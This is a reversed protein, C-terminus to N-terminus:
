FTNRKNVIVTSIINAIILTIITVVYMPLNDGTKVNNNTYGSGSGVYSSSGVNSTKQWQAELYLDSDIETDFDFKEGDLYWGIFKYGERTPQPISNITDEYKVAKSSVISGGNSDFTITYEKRNYIVEYVTSGDSKIIENLKSRAEDFEFGEYEEVELIAIDGVYGTYVDKFVEDEDLGEFITLVTYEAEQPMEWKAVLTIDEEVPTDFDYEDGDLLWGVLVYGDEGELLPFERVYDQYKVKAKSVIRAEDMFSVTYEKRDYYVQLILKSDETIEGSLKSDKHARNIEFGEYKNTDAYVVDGVHGQLEDLDELLYEGYLDEQYYAIMYTKVAEEWRATLVLNSEIEMSPDFEEGDIEWGVFSYGKKTPEAISDITDGHKVTIDSINTGGNTDFRVTYRNLKYVVVLQTSGDAKIIGELISETNDVFYGTHDEVEARVTEGAIGELEETDEDYTGDSLEKKYLITYEAQQGKWNANLTINKDIKTDEDFAIGDLLWGDLTYGEKEVSPYNSIKDQYKVKEEKIEKDDSVFKVTFEKRKYYVKLILDEDAKLTDSIKYNEHESNLEYGAFELLNAYVTKGIEGEQTESKEKKYTGDQQEKYYEVIYEKNAGLWKAKLVIDKVVNYTEFFIDQGDLQWGGFQSNEKSPKDQTKIKGGHKVIEDPILSGGDTDFKVTHNTIDYVVELITSGDGNVKGIIKSKDKNFSYGNFDKIEAQVTSGAIGKLTEIREEYSGDEKELKYIVKYDINANGKWVPYLEIDKEINELKTVTNGDKDIWKDFEYGTKTAPKLSIVDNITVTTPNTEDNQEDNALNYIVNYQKLRWNAHLTIDSMIQYQTFDFKESDTLNDYWGDFDYGKRQPDNPKLIYKGAKINVPGIEGEGGNLDYEVKYINRKYYIKM